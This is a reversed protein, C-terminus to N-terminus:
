PNTCHGSGDFTYNRTGIYYTGSVLMSGEPYGSFQNSKALYFWYYQDDRIDKVKLWGVVMEGEYYTKGNNDSSLVPNDNPDYLYYWKNNIKVWDTVMAGNHYGPNGGYLEPSDNSNWLYYWRNNIKQWGVLYQSNDSYYMWFYDDTEGAKVWGKGWHYMNQRSDGAKSYYNEMKYFFREGALISTPVVYKSHNDMNRSKAALSGTNITLKTSTPINVVKSGSSYLWGATNITVETDSATRCDICVTDTNDYIAYLESQDKIIITTKRDTSIASHNNVGGMITANEEIYLNLTSGDSVQNFYIVAYRNTDTGVDGQGGGIRSSGKITMWYLSKNVFITHVSGYPMYVWSNNIIITRADEIHIAQEKNETYIWSSEITLNKTTGSIGEGFKISTNECQILAQNNVTIASTNISNYIGIGSSTEGEIEEVTCHLTGPGSVTFNGSSVEIENIRNLTNGNLDLTLTKTVNADVYDNVSARVVKITANANAVSIAEQLTWTARVPSSVLYNAILLIATETNGSNTINIGYGAPIGNPEKSM